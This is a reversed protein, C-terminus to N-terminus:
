SRLVEARVEFVAKVEPKRLDLTRNDLRTPHEADVKGSPDLPLEPDAEAVVEVAEPVVEVGTPAREEEEVTGTVAVVSERHVDLGTEVLEDAMEDKEFKVQIKGTTDRVILFAIGGLDRIEHVWGAVTVTDGPEADATYTRDDM